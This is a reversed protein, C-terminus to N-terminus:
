RALGEAGVAEWLGDGGVVLVASGARCSAPSHGAGAQASTLVEAEAAVIGVGHWSRSWRRLRGAPTTPSSRWGVGPRGPEPWSTLRMRSRSTGRHLTGDLDLLLADYSDILPGASGVLSGSM